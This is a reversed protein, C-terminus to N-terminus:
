AAFFQANSDRTKGKLGPAHCMQDDCRERPDHRDFFGREVELFVVGAFFHHVDIFHVRKKKSRRQFHRL